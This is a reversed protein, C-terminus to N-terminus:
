ILGHEVNAIQPSVIISFLIANQSSTSSISHLVESNIFIGEGARLVISADNARVEVEGEIVVSFQFEKHWHSNIYGLDYKHLDDLYVQLPFKISGHQIIEKHRQDVIIKNIQM